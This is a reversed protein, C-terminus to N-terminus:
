EGPSNAHRVFVQKPASIKAAPAIVKLSMMKVEPKGKLSATFGLRYQNDLRWLLDKFFPTFTVPDGMGQWYNVGGTADTVENLLGEGTNNAYFGGELRGEGRWYMAYVVIGARVSDTISAQVYPDDPDFRREYDDVGDTILVVERRANMDQSPWHNALDSLCFYPSAESGAPGAPLRLERAVLDHDASLPAVLAARGYEMYAVAAKSGPPLNRIFYAIAGLQEGLTERASSDIMVVLELPDNPARLPVWSTVDSHQRDIKVQLDQSSVVVPAEKHKPLITIIARGHGDLNEAKSIAPAALLLAGAAMWVAIRLKMM